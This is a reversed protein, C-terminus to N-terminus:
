SLPIMEQFTNDDYYVIIKTVKKSLVQSKAMSIPQEDDIQVNKKEKMNKESGSNEVTKDGYIDSKSSTEDDEDFLSPMQAQKIGRYMPGVGLILWDSSITRYRDLIRKLVDLSPNNRGNLIHSLTPSKIGIEAAFQTANLNEREMIKEIRDKETEM